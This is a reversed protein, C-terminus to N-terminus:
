TGFESIREPNVQAPQVDGDLLAVALLDSGFRIMIWIRM